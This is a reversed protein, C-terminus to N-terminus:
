LLEKPLFTRLTTKVRSPNLSTKYDYENFLDMFMGKSKVSSNAKLITAMEDEGIKAVCFEYFGFLTITSYKVGAYDGKAIHTIFIKSIYDMAALNIPKDNLTLATKERLYIKFYSGRWPTLRCTYCNKPSFNTISDIYEFKMLLEACRKSLLIKHGDIIITRSNFNINEKKLKLFEEPKQFGCYFMQLILELYDAFNGDYNQHIKAIMGEYDKKSFRRHNKLYENFAIPTNADLFPNKIPCINQSYYLVLQSVVRYITYYMEYSIAYVSKERADCIASIVYLFQEYNMKIFETGLENECRQIIRENCVFSLMGKRARDLKSKKMFEQILQETSINEM